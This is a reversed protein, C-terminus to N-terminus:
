YSPGSVVVSGPTVTYNMSRLFHVRNLDFFVVSSWWLLGPVLLMFNAPGQILVVLYARHTYAFCRTAMSCEAGTNLRRHALAEREILFGKTLIQRGRRRLGTGAHLSEVLPRKKGWTQMTQESLEILIGNPIVCNLGLSRAAM